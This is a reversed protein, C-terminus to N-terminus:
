LVLGIKYDQKVAKICPVIIWVDGCVWAKLSFKLQEHCSVNTTRERVCMLPPVHM